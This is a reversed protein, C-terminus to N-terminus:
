NLRMSTTAINRDILTLWGLQQTPQQERTAAAAERLNCAVRWLVFSPQQDTSSDRQPRNVVVVVISAPQQQACTSHSSRYCDAVILYVRLFRAINSAYHLLSPFPPTKTWSLKYPSHPQSV